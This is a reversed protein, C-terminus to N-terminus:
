SRNLYDIVDEVIDETLGDLENTKFLKTITHSVNWGADERDDIIACKTYQPNRKLFLSIENGRIQTNLKPTYAVLKHGPYGHRTLMEQASNINSKYPEYLRWDTSWVIDADTNEIIRSFLSPFPDFILELGKKFEKLYLKRVFLPDSKLEKNYQKEKMDLWDYIREISNACAGDMDM